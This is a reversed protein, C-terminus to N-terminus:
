ILKHTQATHASDEGPANQIALSVVKKICVIFVDFHAFVSASKLKRQAYMDSPVNEVNRTMTNVEPKNNCHM